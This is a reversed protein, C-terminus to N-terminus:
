TFIMNWSSMKYDIDFHLKQNTIRIAFFKMQAVKFTIKEINRKKQCGWIGSKWITTDWSFITRVFWVDISLKNIWIIYLDVNWFNVRKHDLTVYLFM